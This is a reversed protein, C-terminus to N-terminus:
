QVSHGWVCVRINCVTAEGVGATMNVANGVPHRHWHSGLGLGLGLGIGWLIGIGIHDGRICEASSHPRHYVEGKMCLRMGHITRPVAESVSVHTVVESVLVRTAAERCTPPM